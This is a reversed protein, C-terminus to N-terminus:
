AGAGPRSAASAAFRSVYLWTPQFGHRRYMRLAAENGALLGIVLDEVGRARLEEVLRELLRSGLGHGRHEPLVGLSEIEGIRPGTVWTDDLVFTDTAATVVALGYGIARGGSEAVVLVSEDDGLLRRYLASRGAWSQADDVYPELQPMSAVHQHHIGLWLPELADIDAPSGLRISVSETM